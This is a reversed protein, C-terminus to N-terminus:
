HIAVGLDVLLEVRQVRILVVVGAAWGRLLRSGAALPPATRLGRLPTCSRGRNLFDFEM